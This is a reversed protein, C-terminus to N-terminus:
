QSCVHKFDLILVEGSGYGAVLYQGDWQASCPEAYKGSLRFVEKGTVTNKVFSPGKGWFASNSFDLCPRELSDSLPIPSSGSIGFDWGRITSDKSQVWFKSGNARFSDIVYEKEDLELECILRWTWMSWVQVSRQPDGQNVHFVMSGDGSIRLGLSWAPHLMQPIEGIESDWIHIKADKSWILVLKGGMLQADGWFFKRATTQFSTKFLGTFIDWIKVMGDADGSIAVGEGVQLSVFQVPALTSPTSNLDTAVQDTTPVGVQWLKVSRDESASILSSPSSFVISTIEQMHDDFTAVLYPVSNTINWVYAIKGSAVAVLQGDPSFCCCRAYSGDPLHFKATIRGSGSNQATIANGNCLVFKTHDLSFGIHSADHTSRSQYGNTDWEQVHGNSLTILCRPDSPSFHVYDVNGKLKISHHCLGTKVDWLFVMQDCGGSAISTCDTSISVSYVYGTHGNFTKINGGTQVDWIKVTYDDSGSVILKGDSSFVLSRVWDTHSSLVATRSGTTTNLIVINHSRLRLGVAISNNMHSLACPTGGLMVTRSCTGWEALAGKVM